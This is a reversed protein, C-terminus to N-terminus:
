VETPQKKGRRTPILPKFKKYEASEPDAYEVIWRYGQQRFREDALKEVNAIVFDYCVEATEKDGCETALEYTRCYPDPDDHGELTASELRKRLITGVKIRHDPFDVVKEYLRCFDTLYYFMEMDKEVARAYHPHSSPFKYGLLLEKGTPNDELLKKAAKLEDEKSLHGVLRPIPYNVWNFLKAFHERCTAKSFCLQTVRAREPYELDNGSSSTWLFIVEGISYAEEFTSALLFLREYALKKLFDSGKGCLTRAKKFDAEAVIKQLRKNAEDLMSQPIPKGGVHKTIGKSFAYRVDLCQDTTATQWVNEPLADEFLLVALPFGIREVTTSFNM